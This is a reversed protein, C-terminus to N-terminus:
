AITRARSAPKPRKGTQRDGRRRAVEADHAMGQKQTERGLMEAAEACLHSAAYALPRM